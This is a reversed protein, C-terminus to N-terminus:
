ELLGDPMHWPAVFLGRLDRLIDFAPGTHAIADARAPLLILIPQHHRASTTM